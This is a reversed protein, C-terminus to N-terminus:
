GFVTGSSDKNVDRRRSFSGLDITNGSHPCHYQVPHRDHDHGDEVAGILSAMVRGAVPANKFQNGSTGIAMYYGDLGSRDYIPTWDSAVDYVGAIGKPQSPVELAPFRRAARLVQADFLDKTRHPNSADPDEVWQLPDCAPEAGGVMFGNGPSPRMYTGLDLDAVVPGMAGDGDSYGAPATVHHVEQRLPRVDVTFDSGVGALRNLAGSWPGAVNVVVPAELVEGSDLRVGEVRGGTRIVDVVRRRFRFAAGHHAAADALNQAALMPDDVFGADPMYLAGLEGTPDAWFAEDDIRKPPWHRGPDIGPVRARVTAPDWVEARVGAAEMLSHIRKLEILPVDLVVAGVKHFSALRGRAGGLHEAWATWCHYAERALATGDFTSYNFRVIASSSSTSGHGAGAAKDVVIVSRGTRALEHAVSAGIVGAGVVIVDAKVAM